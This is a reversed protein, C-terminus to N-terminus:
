SSVMNEVNAPYPNFLYCSMADFSLIVPFHQLLFSRSLLPRPETLVSVWFLRLPCSVTPTARSTRVHMHAYTTCIYRHKLIRKLIATMITARADLAVVKVTNQTKFIITRIGLLNWITESYRNKGECFGTWRGYVSCAISLLWKAKDSLPTPIQHLTIRCIFLSDSLYFQGRVSQLTRTPRKEASRTNYLCQQRPVKGSAKKGRQIVYRIM